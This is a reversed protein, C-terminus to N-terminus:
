APQGDDPNPAPAPRTEKVKLRFKISRNPDSTEVYGAIQDGIALGTVPAGAQLLGYWRPNTSIPRNKLTGDSVGKITKACHVDNAFSLLVRAQGKFFGGIATPELLGTLDGSLILTSTCTKLDQETQSPLKSSTSGSTSAGGLSAAAAIQGGAKEGVASGLGR